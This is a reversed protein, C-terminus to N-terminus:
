STETINRITMTVTGSALGRVYADFEVVVNTKPTNTTNTIIISSNRWVYDNDATPRRRLGGTTDAENGLTVLIGNVELSAIVSLGYKDDVFVETKTEQGDHRAIIYAHADTPKETSPNFSVTAVLNVQGYANLDVVIQKTEDRNMNSTLGSGGVIQPTKADIDTTQQSNIMELLNARPDRM